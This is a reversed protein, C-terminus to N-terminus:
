HFQRLHLPGGAGRCKKVRRHKTFAITTLLVIAFFLIFGIFSAEEM